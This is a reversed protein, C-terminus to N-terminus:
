WGDVVMARVSQDIQTFTIMVHSVGSVSPPETGGGSWAVLTSTLGSVTFKPIFNDGASASKSVIMHWSKIKGVAHTCVLSTTLTPSTTRTMWYSKGAVPTLSTANNAITTFDIEGGGGSNNSIADTVAKQSMFSTTSTGTTQVIPIGTVQDWAHTHATPAFTTPKSTVEAWTPWRTATAPMNGTHYIQVPSLAEAGSQGYGALYFTNTYPVNSLRFAGTTGSYRVDLFFSGGPEGSRYYFGTPNSYGVSASATATNGGLGFAGVEMVNGAATGVNRTAATGLGTITGVPQTGTHNARALLHADSLNKTANVAIGDLKTKYAETFEGGELPTLRAELGAITSIAQTGTHTARDRLQADTANKTAGVAIGDLKTKLVSTFDNTTLVKGTVKTVRNNLETELNTVSTIPQSGNHNSRELLYADSNNKTAENQIGGLKNKDLTTYDNTSLGKGAIADVKLTLTNDLANFRHTVARQSVVDESSEGFVNVVTTSKQPFGTITGSNNTVYVDFENGNKVYYVSDPELVDPLVLVKHHGIKTYEM